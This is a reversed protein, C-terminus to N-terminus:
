VKMRYHFFCRRDKVGVTYPSWALNNQFPETFKQSKLIFTGSHHEDQIGFYCFLLCQRPGDM